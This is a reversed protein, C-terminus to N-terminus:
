AISRRKRSRVDPSVSLLVIIGTLGSKVNSDFMVSDIPVGCINTVLESILCRMREHVGDRILNPHSDHLLIELPTISDQLLINIVRDAMHCLVHSPAQGTWQSYSSQMAQSLQRELQGVTPLSNPLALPSSAKHNM